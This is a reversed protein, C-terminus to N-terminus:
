ERAQKQPKIGASEASSSQVQAFPLLIKEALTSTAFISVPTTPAPTQPGHTDTQITTHSPEASKGMLAM